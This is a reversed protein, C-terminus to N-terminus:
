GGGSRHIITIQERRSLFLTTPWLNLSAFQIQTFISLLITEVMKLKIKVKPFKILKIPM